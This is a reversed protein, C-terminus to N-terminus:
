EKGKKYLKIEPKKKGEGKFVPQLAYDRVKGIVGNGYMDNGYLLNAIRASRGINSFTTDFFGKGTQTKRHLRM